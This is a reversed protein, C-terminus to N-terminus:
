RGKWDIGYVKREYYYPATTSFLRSSSWLEAYKEIIIGTESMAGAPREM